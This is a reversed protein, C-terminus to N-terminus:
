RQGGRGKVANIPICACKRDVCVQARIEKGTKYVQDRNDWAVDTLTLCLSYM